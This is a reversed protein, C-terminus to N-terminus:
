PSANPPFLVLKFEEPYHLTEFDRIIDSFKYRLESLFMYYEQKEGM